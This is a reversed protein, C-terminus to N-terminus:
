KSVFIMRFNTEKWIKRVYFKTLERKMPKVLVKMNLLLCNSLKNINWLLKMNMQKLLTLVFLSQTSKSPIKSLSHSYIQMKQIYFVYCNNLLPLAKRKKLFHLLIHIEKYIIQQIKFLLHMIILIIILGPLNEYEKSIIFQHLNSVKWINKLQFISNKKHIQKQSKKCIIKENNKMQKKNMKKKNQKKNSKYFKSLFHSNTQTKKRNKQIVQTIQQRKKMYLCNNYYNLNTKLFSYISLIIKILKNKEILLNEQKLFDNKLEFQPELNAVIQFFNLINSFQIIGRESLYNQATKLYDKHLCLLKDLIHQEKYFTKKIYIYNQKPLFDNGAFLSLFVIDDLIKMPNYMLNIIENREFTEKYKKLLSRKLCNIDIIEYKLNYKNEDGSNDKNEQNKENNTEQNTLHRNNDTNDYKTEHNNKHRRQYNSQKEKNNDEVKKEEEEINNKEKQKNDQEQHKNEEKHKNKYNPRQERLILIKRGIASLSLLILDADPSVICHTLKFNKHKRIVELIKHEGEGQCNSDSIIIHLRKYTFDTKENLPQEEQIKKEFHERIRKNLEFMFPTGPSVSNSPVTQEKIQIGQNKFDEKTQNLNKQAHFRRQRQQNMKARPCTGDMMLYVQSQPEILQIISEIHTLINQYIQDLSQPNLLYQNLDDKIYQYCFSNVDIYLCDVYKKKGSQYIKRICFPYRRCIWGFYGPVGM